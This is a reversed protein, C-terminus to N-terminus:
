RAIPPPLPPIADILRAAMYPLFARQDFSFLETAGTNVDTTHWLFHHPMRRLNRFGNMQVARIVAEVGCHVVEIPFLQNSVTSGM